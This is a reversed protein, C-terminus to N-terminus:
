DFFKELTPAVVFNYVVLTAVGGAVVPLLKELTIKGTMDILTLRM